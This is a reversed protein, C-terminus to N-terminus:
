LHPTCAQRPVLRHGVTSTVGLGGLVGGLAAWDGLALVGEPLPM